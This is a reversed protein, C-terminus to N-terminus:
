DANSCGVTLEGDSSLSSISPTLVQELLCAEKTSTLVVTHNQEETRV